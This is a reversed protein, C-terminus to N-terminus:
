TNFPDFAPNSGSWICSAKDNLNCALGNSCRHALIRPPQDPLHESPYVAQAELGVEQHIHHCYQVKLTQWTQQTM